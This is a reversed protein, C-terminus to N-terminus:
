KYLDYVYRFSYTDTTNASVTFFLGDSYVPQFDLPTDIINISMNNFIKLQKQGDVPLFHEISM